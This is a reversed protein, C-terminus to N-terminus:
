MNQHTPSSFTRSRRLYTHRSKGNREMSLVDRQENNNNNWQRLIFSIWGFNFNRKGVSIAKVCWWVISEPASKANPNIRVFFFAANQYTVTAGIWWDGGDVNEYKIQLSFFAIIYFQLLSPISMWRRKNDCTERKREKEGIRHSIGHRSMMM